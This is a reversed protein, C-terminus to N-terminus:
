SAPSLFARLAGYFPVAARTQEVRQRYVAGLAQNLQHDYRALRDASTDGLRLADTAVEAALRATGMAQRIGEGTFPDSASAADGVFLIGPAGAPSGVRGTRIEAGRLPEIRRADGFRERVGSQSTLFRELAHQLNLRWARCQRFTTGVGVNAIRDGVPFVWAYHLGMDPRFYIEIMDELGAVNEFYARGAVEVCDPDLSALGMRRAMHTAAGDAAIVLRAGISLPVGDHTGRVGVVAGDALLPSQVLYGGLWRVGLAVSHRRLADDLQLRPCVLGGRLDSIRVSSTAPPWDEVRQHKIPRGDTLEIGLRSMEDLCGASVFDGCTKDRPFHSRDALLVSFGSRALYGAATSGGPGAGVVVVDYCAATTGPRTV